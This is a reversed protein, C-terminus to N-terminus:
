LNQGFLSYYLFSLKDTLGKLSTKKLDKLHKKKAKNSDEKAIPFINFKGIEESEAETCDVKKYDSDIRSLLLEKFDDFDIKGESYSKDLGRLPYNLIKGNFNIMVYYKGNDYHLEFIISSAFPLVLSNYVSEDDLAKDVLTKLYEGSYM